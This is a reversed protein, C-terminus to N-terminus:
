QILFITSFRSRIFLTEYIGDRILFLDKSICIACQITYETPNLYSRTQLPKANYLRSFIYHYIPYVHKIFLEDNHGAQLWRWVHKRCNVSCMVIQHRSEDCCRIERRNLSERNVLSNPTKAHNCVLLQSIYYRWNSLDALVGKFAGTIYLYIIHNVILTM